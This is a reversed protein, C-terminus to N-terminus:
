CLFAEWGDKNLNSHLPIPLDSPCLLCPRFNVPYSRKVLLLYFWLPYFPKAWISINSLGKLFYIPKISKPTFFYVWKIILTWHIKLFHEILQALHVCGWFQWWLWVRSWKRWGLLHGRAGRDPKEGLGARLLGWEAEWCKPAGNGSRRHVRVAHWRKPRAAKVWCM